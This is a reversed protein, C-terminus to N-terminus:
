YVEEKLEDYRERNSYEFKYEFGSPTSGLWDFFDDLEGHPITFGESSKRCEFGLDNFREVWHDIRHLENKSYFEVSPWPSSWRIGGDCVYWTKVVQPTLPVDKPFVKDGDDYWSTFKHLHPHSRFRLQYVDHYDGDSGNGFGIKEARDSVQQKTSKVTVGHTLSGFLENLHNLYDENIMAVVAYPNKAKPKDRLYGDGMLLGIM